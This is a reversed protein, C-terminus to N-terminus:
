SGAGAPPRPRDPTACEPEFIQEHDPASIAAAEISAIVRRPEFYPADGGFVIRDLASGGARLIGDDPITRIPSTSPSIATPGCPASANRVSSRPSSPTARSSSFTRSTWRSAASRARTQAPARDHRHLPVLAPQEGNGLAKLLDAFVPSDLGFQEFTAHFM